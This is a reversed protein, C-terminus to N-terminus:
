RGEGLRYGLAIAPLYTDWKAYSDAATCRKTLAGMITQVLREALGNTQPHHPSTVRHDIMYRELLEQFEGMFEKGQDTLVEACSGYRGLVGHEFAYATFPTKKHPIPIIEINKSFSEICVMIYKNKHVQTLTNNFPGCLDVQWRYFLGQIPMPNLLPTSNNLSTNIMDCTKCTRVYRQIDKWLGRWWYTTLVLHTTRKEGFHGCKEHIDQMLQRRQDPKPVVKLTGDATVKHIVGSM